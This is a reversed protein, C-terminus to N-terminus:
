YLGTPSWCNPKILESEHVLNQIPVIICWPCGYSFTILTFSEYMLLYRNQLFTSVKTACAFLSKPSSIANSNFVIKYSLYTEVQLKNKNTSSLSNDKCISVLFSGTAKLPRHAVMSQVVFTYIVIRRFRTCFM